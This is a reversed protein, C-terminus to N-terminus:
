PYYVNILLTFYIVATFIGFLTIKDKRNKILLYSVTILWAILFLFASLLFLVMSPVTFLPILFSIGWWFEVDKFYHFLLVSVFLSVFSLTPFYNVYRVVKSDMVDNEMSIKRKPENLNLQYDAKACNCVDLIKGFFTGYLVIDSVLKIIQNKASSELNSFM